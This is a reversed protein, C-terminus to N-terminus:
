VQRAFRDLCAMRVREVTAPSDLRFLESPAAGGQVSFGVLTFLLKFFCLWASIGFRAATLADKIAFYVSSGLFLPPEGVAKSSLVARDNPANRLLSVTFDLPIDRFGPIKYAGPGRTFTVGKPSYVMEEMCFLGFGQTFAGEVQGIDIAPNLSAGVDMVVTAHLVQADGTLVDVEVEACAAGYNFYNFARGSNTEFSYGLDPTQAPSQRSVILSFGYLFFLRFGAFVKYFGSAALSVQDFYATNVWAKWGGAPDKAKYAALRENIQRCADLVAM